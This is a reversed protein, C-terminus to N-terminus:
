RDLKVKAVFTRAIGQRLTVKVVKGTAQAPVVFHIYGRVKEGKSISLDNLKPGCAEGFPLVRGFTYSKDDQIEASSFFLDKDRVEILLDVGYLVNGKEDPPGCAAAAAVTLAFARTVIRQGLPVHESPPELAECSAAVAPATVIEMPAPTIAADKPLSLERRLAENEALLRDLEDKSPGCAAVLVLAIAAAFWNSRSM